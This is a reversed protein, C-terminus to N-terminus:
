KAAAPAGAGLREALARLGPREPDLGLAHRALEASAVSDGLARRVAALSLWSEAHAPRERLLSVLAADARALRLMRVAGPPAALARRAEEGAVRWPREPPALVAALLLGAGLALTAAAARGLPRARSGACAAALSAAFAALAANSPIRLDFDFASHVALAALAALAGRGAGLVVASGDRPARAVARVLLLLTGLALALGVVGTEALTELYDNEAHEVRVAEHGRKFRPYADHFAGLGHGVLPSSAALRLADRWTDLRFEAGALSHLRERAPAPALAVVVLGLLLVLAVSAAIAAPARRRHRFLTLGLLCTTGAVLALAGGRSLSAFVALAMVLSAVIALAVPAATRSATWDRGRRRAADALGAALGAVLLAAMATWGAFHNENVFPGFPRVTPVALTGYLLPGLRDRALIAYASLVLGGCALAGLALTVGRREALAPAALLALLGLAAVLATGRLTTQPDISVPRAVDGLVAAAAPEGPRWVSFSGPALRRHVADPLPLLQALALSLFALLPWCAVAPLAVGPARLAGLALAVGVALLGAAIVLLLPRPAVAGFAWPSVLALSVLTVAALRAGLPPSPRAPATV